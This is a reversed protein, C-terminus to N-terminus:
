LLCGSCLVCLLVLATLVACAVMCFVFSDECCSTFLKVFRLGVFYCCWLGCEVGCTAFWGVLGVFAVSVCSCVTIPFCRLM